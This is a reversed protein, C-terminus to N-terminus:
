LKGSQRSWSQRYETLVTLPRVLHRSTSSFEGDQSNRETLVTYRSNYPIVGYLLDFPYRGVYNTSLIRCSDVPGGEVECILDLRDGENFPGIEGELVEGNVDKIIPKKPPEELIKWSTVPEPPLCCDSRKLCCSAQLVGRLKTRRSEKKDKKEGPM